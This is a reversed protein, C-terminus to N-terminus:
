NFNLWFWNWWSLEKLQTLFEQMEKRLALYRYNSLDEQNKLYYLTENFGWLFSNVLVQGKPTESKGVVINVIPMASVGKIYVGWFASDTSTSQEKLELKYAFKWTSINKQLNEVSQNIKIKDQLKDSGIVSVAKTEVAKVFHEFSELRKKSFNKLLKDQLATVKLNFFM